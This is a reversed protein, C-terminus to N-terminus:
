ESVLFARVSWDQGNPQHWVRGRYQLEVLPQLSPPCDGAARLVQRSVRPLYLVPTEGPQSAEPLTREVICKLWIAPGTRTARDYKGLAYLAPVVARLAPLLPLWQAESDTWLLAVPDATGDPPRLAERFSAILGEILTRALVATETRM